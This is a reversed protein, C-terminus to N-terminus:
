GCPETCARLTEGIVNDPAVPTGFLPTAVEAVEARQEDMTGRGALTASTGVCQLDPARM